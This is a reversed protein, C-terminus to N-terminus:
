GTTPSWSFAYTRSANSEVHIEELPFNRSQTFPALCYACRSPAVLRPRCNACVFHGNECNYLPPPPVERCVPCEILGLMEPVDSETLDVIQADSKPEAVAQDCVLQDVMFERAITWGPLEPPLQM